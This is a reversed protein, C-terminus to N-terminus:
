PRSSSSSKLASTAVLAGARAALGHRTIDERADRLFLPRVGLKRPRQEIPQYLPTPRLHRAGDFALQSDKCRTARGVAAGAAFAASTAAASAWAMRSLPRIGSSSHADSQPFRSSAVRSRAALSTPRRLRSHTETTVAGYSVIQACAPAHSKAAQTPEVSHRRAAGVKSTSRSQLIAMFVIFARCYLGIPWRRDERKRRKMRAVRESVSAVARGIGLHEPVDFAPQPTGLLM